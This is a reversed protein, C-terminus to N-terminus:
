DPEIFIKFAKAMENVFNMAMGQFIWPYYISGLEEDLECFERIFTYFYQVCAAMKFRNLFAEPLRSVLM